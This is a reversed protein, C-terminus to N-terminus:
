VGRAGNTLRQVSVEPDGDFFAAERSHCTFLLIQRRKAEEKLLRLATRCRRDDFDALADDLGLPPADERPLVLECVALRVALYLQGGAGASLLQADRRIPDGAPAAALHFSRDLAVDSYTGDTLLSFLEAARQGLQPAFRNQLESNAEELTEMALAIADYEDNLVALQATLREEQAELAARGGMASIRGSLRDAASRAASLETRVPVLATELEERSRAPPQTPADELLADELTQRALTECRVRATDAATQAATLERRRVACERLAGDATPIDFAAPAFRRVELLIGQENSTLSAYLADYTAATKVAAAQAEDRARCLAGYREALATLEEASSAGYGTLYALRKRRDARERGFVVLLGALLGAAGAPAAAWLPPPASGGVARVLLVGGACLAALLIPLWWAKRRVPPVGEAARRAEDASRGTFPSDSVATEARVQAKMAADKEAMARDVSKRVTGLNVIAGRLRAIAENEPLRTEEAQRRLRDATEAAAAAESRAEDLARLQRAADWRDHLALLASLEEEERALRDATQRAQTLSRETETLEALQRRTEALEAELAPIQGTRNHRRRNLQKKLADAAESYSTDEEGSTILAAIRRELGADQTVPLGAQRIFASREYVERSVGLLTEGCSQGTLGPVDDNTGAYVARFDGLPATQRKTARTLTLEDGGARCDLRGAMAAGSWPAYRNKEAIFGARDRERSNVGYLMALLFACWTSKGSENPAQIVNLGDALELTQQDLKGFTASMRHIRLAIM